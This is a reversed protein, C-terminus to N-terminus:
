GTYTFQDNANLPSTGLQTNVTVDVVAATNQVVGIAPPLTVTIQSDSDVTFATTAASGFSVSSAGDKFGSGTITILTGGGTPGHGPSVASVTPSAVGGNITHVIVSGRSTSGVAWCTLSTACAVAQLNAGLPNATQNSWTAGGDSTAVVPTQYEDGNSVVGAAVCHLTDSCSIANLHPAHGRAIQSGSVLPSVTWTSGGDTTTIQDVSQYGSNQGVAVCDQPVPCSIGTIANASILQSQWTQGGDNTTSVVGQTEIPPSLTTSYTAQGVALCDNTSTCTIANLQSGILAVANAPLSPASWVLNAWGLGGDNTMLVTSTGGAGLAATALCHRADSCSVSTLYGNVSPVAFSNWTAGGDNSVLVTNSASLNTGRMEGGVAVCLVVGACSIANLGLGTVGQTDIVWNEGANTTREVIANGTAGTGVAMCVATSPCTIASLWSSDSTALQTYWGFCATLTTAVLLLALPLGIRRALRTRWPSVMSEGMTGSTTPAYYLAANEWRGLM